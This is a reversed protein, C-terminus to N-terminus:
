FGVGGSVIRGFLVGDADSERCASVPEMVEIDVGVDVRGDSVQFVHVGPVRCEGPTEIVVAYSGASLGERKNNGVDFGPAPGLEVSPPQDTGGSYWRIDYGSYDSVVVGSEADVLSLSISGDAVRCSSEPVIVAPTSAFEPIFPDDLIEFTM